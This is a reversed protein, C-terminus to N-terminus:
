HVFFYSPPHKPPWSPQGELQLEHLQQRIVSNRLHMTDRVEWVFSFVIAASISILIWIWIREILSCQRETHTPYDLAEAETTKM